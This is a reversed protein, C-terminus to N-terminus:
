NNISSLNNFCKLLENRWHSNKLGIIKKTNSTDLVSYNPRLTKSSYENSKIPKIEGAKNILGSKLGIEKITVALDYWSAIGDNSFHNITPFVKNKKSYEMNKNIIKWIADALSSTTTPSSVQDCIVKIEEQNNLLQMIKLAFNNGNPGVLWSTRLINAQNNNNSLYNKIYEEGKAKSLGYTNIPSPKQNTKYPYNQKGNFVYDTSIHLLKGGSISLAKALIQPGLTNIKYAVEQEKEAKDVNTFAGSNIIWDPSLHLIYEYCANTNTLDFEFRSPTLLNIDKPSNKIIERGLQGTSGILLIKM